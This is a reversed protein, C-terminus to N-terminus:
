VPTPDEFDSVQIAGIVDWGYTRAFYAYADHYTLLERKASGDRFRNADCRRVRRDHAPVHDYNAAYYGANDPDREVHRRKVIEAYRRAM